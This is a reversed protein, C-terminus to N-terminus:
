NPTSRSAAIYGFKPDVTPRSRLVRFGLERLRNEVQSASDDPFGTKLGLHYEMSVSKVKSWCSADASWLLAHEGGECDVKLLDTAPISAFFDKASITDVEVTAKTAAVSFLSGDGTRSAVNFAARGTTSSIALCRVNVNEIANLRCNERVKAACEPNPEFSYVKGRPVLNKAAYISYLGTNAGIDVVVGDKPVAFAAHDYVHEGFIEFFQQREDESVRLNMGNRLRIESLSSNKRRSEIVERWNELNVISWVALRIQRVSPM